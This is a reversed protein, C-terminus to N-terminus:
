QGKFNVLFVPAKGNHFIYGELASIVALSEGIALEYLEQMLLIDSSKVSASKREPFIKYFLMESFHHLECYFRHGKAATLIQKPSIDEYLDSIIGCCKESPIVHYDRKSRASGSLRDRNFLALDLAKEARFHYLPDFKGREHIVAHCERDLYYHCIFGCLYAFAMNKERQGRYSLIVKKAHAIFEAPSEGHMAYGTMTVRNPIVPHYYFFIDPGHLGIFFLKRYPIIRRRIDAPLRDAVRCGMSFHAYSEPM